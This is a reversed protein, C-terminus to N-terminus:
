RRGLAPILKRLIVDPLFRSRRREKTKKMREIENLQQIAARERARQQNEIKSLKEM